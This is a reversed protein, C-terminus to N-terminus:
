EGGTAAEAKASLLSVSGGAKEVAAVASKSAHDVIFSVKAELAGKGLLRVGDRPKTALGAALM